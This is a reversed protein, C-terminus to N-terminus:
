PKRSKPRERGSKTRREKGAGPQAGNQERPSAPGQHRLAASFRFQWARSRLPSRGRPRPGVLGLCQRPRATRRLARARLRLPTRGPGDAEMRVPGGRRVRRDRGGGCPRGRGSKTSPWFGAGQREALFAAHHHTAVDCPGGDPRRGCPRLPKLITESAFPPEQVAPWFGAGIDCPGRDPRLRGPSRGTQLDGRHPRLHPRHGRGQADKGTFHLCWGDTTRERRVNFARTPSRFTRRPRDRPGHDPAPRPDRQGRVRRPDAPAPAVPRRTRHHEDRRPRPADPRWLRPRHRRRPPPAPAPEPDRPRDLHGGLEEVLLAVARMRHRNDRSLSGYLGDLAAEVTPFIGRDRATVALAAQEWPSVDARIANEEAM